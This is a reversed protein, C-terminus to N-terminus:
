PIESIYVLSLYKYDSIFPLSVNKPCKQYTLLFLYKYCTTIESTKKHEVETYQIFSETSPIYSHKRIQRPIYFFGMTIIPNYQYIKVGFDIYTVRQGGTVGSILQVDNTNHTVLRHRATILLLHMSAGIRTEESKAPLTM